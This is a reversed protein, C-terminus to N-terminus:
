LKFIDTPTDVLVAKDGCIAIPQKLIQPNHEITTLWDMDSLDLHGFHTKFYPHEQNVLEKIPLHLREAVEALQEGTMRTKLLDIGHIPLEKTRALALTKKARVSDSIYILTIERCSTALELM